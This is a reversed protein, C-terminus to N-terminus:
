QKASDSRAPQTNKRVPKKAAPKKPPPEVTAPEPEIERQELAGGAGGATPTQAVYVTSGTVRLAVLAHRGSVSVNQTVQTGDPMELTVAHTGEPLVARGISFFAPLTRWTREDAQESAVMAVATAISLVAGGLGSANDQVSKQLASKGIARITSRVIIGPMEDSLARRAMHDVNTIMALPLPKEKGDIRINEPISGTDVPHIVPWSVPVLVLGTGHKSPVPIPIAIRQSVIAPAFGSEIVFLTDVGDKKRATAKRKALGSLGEELLPIGPRMEIAKRYGAAALSSEGLAEYVFGALYNAFASEYANKLARVEPDDLTEVPYGDLEKFSTAKLGKEEAKKEAQELEKARFEAIIAEREHMKKIEIRAADWNGLAIHNLALRVSVLVKEYDRGDYRRTTDNVIFAGIEGMLKSPDTRAIEEWQRIAADAELWAVTSPEFEGKMRLLEGRELFYLTDKSGRNELEQLALDPTGTKAAEVSGTLQAHYSACGGLILAAVAIGGHRLSRKLGAALATADFAKWYLAKQNCAMKEILGSM